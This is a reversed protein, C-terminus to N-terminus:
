HKAGRAARRALYVASLVSVVLIVPPLFDSGFDDSDTRSAALRSGGGAIPPALVALWLVTRGVAEAKLLRLALYAGALCGLWSGVAAVAAVTGISEDLGGGARGAWFSAVINELIEALMTFGLFAGLSFGVAGGVTGGVLTTVFGKTDGRTSM